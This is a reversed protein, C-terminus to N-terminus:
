QYRLAEIADLKAARQAPYYGFVIGITASVGFALMVSGSSVQAQIPSFASIALSVAWAILLGVAGGLVTLEVSEVLFQLTIERRKAGLAKRLGIEQIRETVTTLMMNMIGIGGVLLSIGAIAGLLTTMLTTVTSLASSLEEQTSVTFDLKSTDEIKHRQILLNRVGEQVGAIAEQSSAELFIMSVADGGSLYRQLTSLPIFIADDSSGLGTAGQAEMVGVVKFTAGKIRIRQGVPNSGAGFLNESTTSGIVAVRAADAEQTANFWAGDAMEISRIMSYSASTGTIAVNESNNLGVVTAASGSQPAVAAVNPVSRIADADDVTLANAGAGPMSGPRVAPGVMILNSGISQISSMISAQTGQGLAVMIIVSAIGVVIGLITLGSRAKNSTLSLATESVLDKPKM